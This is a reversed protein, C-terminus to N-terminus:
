QDPKEIAEWKNLLQMMTKNMVANNNAMLSLEEVDIEKLLANLDIRQILMKIGADLKENKERFEENSKIFDENEKQLKEYEESKTAKETQLQSLKIRLKILNDRNAKRRAAMDAADENLIEMEQDNSIKADLMVKARQEEDKLQELMVEANEKKEELNHRLRNQM